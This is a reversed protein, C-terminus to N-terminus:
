PSRCTRDSKQQENESGSQTSEEPIEEVAASGCCSKQKGSNWGLLFKLLEKWSKQKM